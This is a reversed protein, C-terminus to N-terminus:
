ELGAASKVMEIDDLTQAAAAEVFEDMADYIGNVARDTADIEQEYSRELIQEAREMEEVLDTVTKVDEQTLEDGMSAVAEQIVDNAEQDLGASALSDLLQQKTM